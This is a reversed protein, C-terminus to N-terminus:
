LPCIIVARTSSVRDHPQIDSPRHRDPACSIAPNILPLYEAPLLLQTHYSFCLIPFIFFDCLDSPLTCTDAVGSIPIRKPDRLQQQKQPPLRLDHGGQQGHSLRGIPKRTLQSASHAKVATKSLDPISQPCVIPMSCNSVGSRAGRLSTTPHEQFAGVTALQLFCSSRWAACSATRTGIVFSPFVLGQM